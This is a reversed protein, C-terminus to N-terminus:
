EHHNSNRAFIEFLQLRFNFCSDVKIVCDEKHQNSSLSYLLASCEICDGEWRGFDVDFVVEVWGGRQSDTICIICSIM